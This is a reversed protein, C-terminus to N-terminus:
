VFPELMQEFSKLSSSRTSGAMGGLIQDEMKGEVFLAVTPVRKVGLEATLGANEPSFDVRVVDVRGSYRGAINEVLPRISLSQSCWAADFHVLVPSKSERVSGFTAENVSRVPSIQEEIMKVISDRSTMGGIFDTPRGEQFIMTVPYRNVRTRKRIGETSEDAEVSVVQLKGRFDEAIEDIIPALEQSPRCWAARFAVLVPDSSNLVRKEFNTDVIPEVKM